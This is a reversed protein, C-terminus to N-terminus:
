WPLERGAHNFFKGSDARSASAIVTLLGEVSKSIPLPAREGGMETQVWGPHLAIAILDREEIALTRVFMNVASKSMRYAYSGGSTNDGISGMLSSLTAVKPNEAKVLLPLLAQTLRLPGVSNTNLTDILTKSDINDITLDGDLYIGANNILLDVSGTEHGVAKAFETVSKDDAVDLAFVKLLGRSSKEFDELERAKAPNRVGAFVKCGQLVYQHVLELGIGRSAGSIVVVQQSM